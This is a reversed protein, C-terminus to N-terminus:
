GGINDYEDYFDQTDELKQSGVLILYFDAVNSGTRETLIHGGFKEFFEYSNNENLYEEIKSSKEFLNKDAIAGAMNSNDWGDSACGVVVTNEPIYPLSGLVFEQNRGGVGKNNLVRVTTEGGWIHCSNPLYDKKILKEGLERAIGQIKHDEIYAYYGLDEAKKKMAELAVINSGLLINKVNTFYKEKKPTEILDIKIQPFKERIKFRKLIEEADKKTTLDMATPGSAIVSLDDGPVDSLIFSIVTAPYALEAFQGGKIQSSHKRFTNLESITAGSHMLENSILTYDDCSLRNPLFMLSSGGGSIVTLILDKKTAEKLLDVISKTVVMNKNSPLPHTGAESLLNKFKGEKVDLVIGSYIKEGILKEFFTASSVACKGVAIFFVKEYDDLCIKFDKLCISNNEFSIKSLILREVMISEYGIELINLADERLTNNALTEINKIIPM